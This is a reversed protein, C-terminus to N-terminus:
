LLVIEAKSGANEEMTNKAIKFLNEKSIETEESIVICWADFEKCKFAFEAEDNLSAPPVRKWKKDDYKIIFQNDKNTVTKKASPNFFNKEKISDVQLDVKLYDLLNEDPMDELIEYAWTGNNYIYITDGYETVARTQSFLTISTFLM